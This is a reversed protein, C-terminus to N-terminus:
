EILIGMKGMQYDRMAELVQTQNNLVFPGHMVLEENLPAGALLLMVADETVEVSISEGDNRYCILDEEFARKGDSSSSRGSVHYLCANMHTPVNVQFASNAKADIRIILLDSKGQMPGLMGQSTGCVLRMEVGADKSPLLPINEFDVSQYSPQDMKHKAPSNIWLQIIEFPGGNEALAASPRESHVIGMGSNMWQIGGANVTGVNGRSDKHEVSGQIVFTVPSFGRHPHPGVGVDRQHQNGPLPRNWHHLLLFPDIQETGPAPLPQDLIIGGMNVKRAPLIKEITRMDENKFYFLLSKSSNSVFFAM